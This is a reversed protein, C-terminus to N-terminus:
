CCCPHWCCWSALLLISALLPVFVLWLRSVLLLLFPPLLFSCPLCCSWIYSFCFFFITALPSVDCVPLCPLLLLSAIRLLCHQPDPVPLIRFKQGSGSGIRFRFLRKPDPNSDPDSVPNSDPDLIFRYFLAKCEPWFLTTEYSLLYKVNETEFIFLHIHWRRSRTSLAAWPIILYLSVLAFHRWRFLQGTFPSQPLHKASNRSQM